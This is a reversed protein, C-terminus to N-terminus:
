SPGSRDVVAEAGEDVVETERAAEDVVRDSGCGESVVAAGVVTACATSGDVVVEAGDVVAVVAVL